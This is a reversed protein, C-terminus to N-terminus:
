QEVSQQHENLYTEALATHLAAGVPLVDEDLFFHPSHPSHISGLKENRIGISLMIGPIVEQYFAFDEGAMLKEGMKVNEPGLLLSGIRQVHSNLSEDNLVAPYAPYGENEMNIYATCRHM